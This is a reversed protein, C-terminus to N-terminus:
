PKPRSAPYQTNFHLYKWIGRVTAQRALSLLTGYTETRTPASGEAPPYDRKTPHENARIRLHPAEDTDAPTGHVGRVSKSTKCMISSAASPRSGTCSDFQGRTHKREPVPLDYRLYACNSLGWAYGSGLEFLRIFKVRDRDRSTTQLTDVRYAEGIM